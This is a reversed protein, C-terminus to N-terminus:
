YDITENESFKEDQPQKQLFKQYFYIAGTYVVMSSLTGFVDTKIDNGQFYDWLTKTGGVIAISSNGTTYPNHAIYNKVLESSRIANLELKIEYTTMPEFTGELTQKYFRYGVQCYGKYNDRLTDVTFESVEVSHEQSSPAVVFKDKQLKDKQEYFELGSKAIPQLKSVYSNRSFGQNEIAGMPAIVLFGLTPIALKKLMKLIM